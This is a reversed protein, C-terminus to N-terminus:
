RMIPWKRELYVVYKYMNESELYVVYKYINESELYVVYKSINESEERDELYTCYKYKAIM